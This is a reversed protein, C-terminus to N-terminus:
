VFGLKSMARELEVVCADINMEGTQPLQAIGAFRKPHMTCQSAIVDNTAKTWAEVLFPREWHMMAVPRPSILQLDVNREDMIRLHRDLAAKVAPEPMEIKAFEGPTRLAILNYAHARFPPPTSIHGHVDIVKRNRYMAPSRLPPAARIQFQCIRNAM